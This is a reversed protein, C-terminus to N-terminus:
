ASITSELRASSTSALNEAGATPKKVAAPQANPDSEPESRLCLEQIKGSIELENDAHIMDEIGEVTLAKRHEEEM